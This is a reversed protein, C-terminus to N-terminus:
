YPRRRIGLRYLLPSIVLEIVTFVTVIIVIDVLGIDLRPRVALLPFLAEPIQDLGAAQSSAPRNLRRKIFSSSLDGLMSFAGILAGLHWDLGLVPAAVASVLVALVVGRWTKAPGLIPRGDIFTRGGDVPWALRLGLWWRAVIPVSNAVGLLILLKLDLIM